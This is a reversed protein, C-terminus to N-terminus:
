AALPGNNGDNNGKQSHPSGFLSHQELCQLLAIDETEMDSVGNSELTARQRVVKALQHMVRHQENKFRQDISEIM